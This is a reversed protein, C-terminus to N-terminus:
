PVERPSPRSLSLVGRRVEARVKGPLDRRTFKQTILEELTVVWAHTAAEARHPSDGYVTWLARLLVRRRLAPHVFALPPTRLRVRGPEGELLVGTWTADALETLLASDQAANEALRCLAETLRPNYAEALDPLHARLRSRLYRPDDNHPDHRFAINRETCFAECDRRRWHLLPRVLRLTPTLPRTAPIGALGDVSTGRLVRWLITEAQDDAHHATAIATADFDQAVEQLFAYRQRRGEDDPARSTAPVFGLGVVCPVSHRLSLAACFGADEDADRGRLGHHFHAAVVPRPNAQECLWLFLAVSDAGGSLAVVVRDDARLLMTSEAANM